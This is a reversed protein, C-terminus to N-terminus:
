ILLLLITLINMISQYFLLNPSVFCYHFFSSFCCVKSCIIALKREVFNYRKRLEKLDPDGCSKENKLAILEQELKQVQNSLISVHSLQAVLNTKANKLESELDVSGSPALVSMMRAFSAIEKGQAELQSELSKIMNNNEERQLELEAVKISSEQLKENLESITSSTGGNLEGCNSKKRTANLISCRPTSPSSKEGSMKEQSSQFYGVWENMEAESDALLIWTRKPTIVRFIKENRPVSLSIQDSDYRQIRTCAPNLDIAGLAKADDPYKYYFAHGDRIEFWRKKWGKIVEGRKLLWGNKMDEGGLSM